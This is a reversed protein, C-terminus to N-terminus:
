GSTRQGSKCQKARIFGAEICFAIQRRLDADNMDPAVLGTLEEASRTQFQPNRLFYTLYPKLARAALGNIQERDQATMVVEPRHLGDFSGILDLFSIASIAERATLQAIAPGSVGGIALRAIGNVVHDIPVFNLTADASAPVSKIRGEAIFKFARYITDFSRIMGTQHQGVIISPRAIIAEPRLNLLMSEAVAKSREYGNAFPGSAEHPMELITGNVIGCSYATSVHVFRANPFAEACNRTGHVNVTELEAYSAEFRVMAACHIVCDVQSAVNALQADSLGLGRESVNGRLWGVAHNDNFSGGSHHVPLEQGDVGRIAVERHILGIVQHGDNMLKEALAGGLLGAAGTLFIKM